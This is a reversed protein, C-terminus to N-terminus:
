RQLSARATATCCGGNPAIMRCGHTRQRDNNLRDNQDPALLERLPRGLLEHGPIGILECARDDVYTILDGADIEFEADRGDADNLSPKDSVSQATEHTASIRLSVARRSASHRPSVRM